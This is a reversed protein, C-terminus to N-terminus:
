NSTKLTFKFMLYSQVGDVLTLLVILDFYNNSRNTNHFTINTILSSIHYFLTHKSKQSTDVKHQPNLVM